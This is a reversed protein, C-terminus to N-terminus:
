PHFFQPLERGCLQGPFHSDHEGAAQLRLQHGAPVHGCHAAIGVRASQSDEQLRILLLHILRQRCHMGPVERVSGEIGDTVALALPDKQGAGDALFRLDDDQVFRSGIEVYAM